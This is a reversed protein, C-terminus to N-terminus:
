SEVREGFIGTGEEGFDGVPVGNVVGPFTVAMEFEISAVLFVAGDVAKTWVADGDVGVGSQFGDVAMAGIDLLRIEVGDERGRLIGEVCVAADIFGGVSAFPSDERMGKGVIGHLTHLLVDQTIDSGETLFQARFRSCRQNSKSILPLPLPTHHLIHRIPAVVKREIDHAIQTESFRKLHQFMLLISMNNIQNPISSMHM